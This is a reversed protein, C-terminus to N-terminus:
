RYGLIGRLSVTGFSNLRRRIEGTPIWTECSYLLVPLGLSRFVRIKTRECVYRCRWVGKDQIFKDRELSTGTM